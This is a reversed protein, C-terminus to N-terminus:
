NKKRNFMLMTDNDRTSVYKELASSELKNGQPPEDINPRVSNGIDKLYTYGQCMDNTCEEDLFSFSSDGIMDSNLQYPSIEETKEMKSEIYNFLVSDAAIQKSTTIIMPVRDVIRPITYKPVDVNILVFEDKLNKKNILALVDKSFKCFNSYFLLDKNHAM